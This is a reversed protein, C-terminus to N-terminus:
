GHVLTVRMFMLNYAHECNDLQHKHVCTNQALLGKEQVGWMQMCSPSRVQGTERMYM